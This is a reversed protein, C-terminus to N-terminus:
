PRDPYVMLFVGLPEGHESPPRRAFEDFVVQIRTLLEAREDATLRLGLRTSVTQGPPVDGIEGLYAALMARENSVHGADHSVNVTWSKGTARYPVERSGRRGRRVPEAALFGTDVLRRVHHLTSAPNRGLREAIEKNTLAQDLTVRLIRLRVASALARAEEETAPRRTTLESRDPQATM